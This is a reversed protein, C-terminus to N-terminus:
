KGPRPRTRIPLYVAAHTESPQSGFRKDLREIYADAPESAPTQAQTDLPEPSAIVTLLELGFPPAITFQMIDNPGGLTFIDGAKLRHSKIMNPLLHLVDGNVQYYDVQLFADRDSVVQVSLTEGATYTASQKKNAKMSLGFAGGKPFVQEFFRTVNRMVIEQSADPAAADPVAKTVPAAPAAAMASAPEAAEASPTPLPPTPPASASAQSLGVAGAATDPQEPDADDPHEPPPAAAETATEAPGIWVNAWGNNGYGISSPQYGHLRKDRFYWGDLWGIVVTPSDSVLLRRQLEHYIQRREDPAQARQGRRALKEATRDQWGSWNYPADAAFLLDFPASPDPRMVLTDEIGILDFRGRSYDRWAASSEYAKLQARIGIRRLQPAILQARALYDGVSRVLIDVDVGNPYVSAVLRQAEAIDQAKPQRCGPTAMLDELPLAWDGYIDPPLVACPTGGQEFAAQMLHQRDLALHVARRMEPARFPGKKPNLYLTWVTNLPWQYVEIEDGRAKQLEQAQAYSMPAWTSWFWTDGFSAARLWHARHSFVTHVIENAYPHLADYYNPNRSWVIDRNPADSKIMFPGTGIASEMRSLTPDRELVHRAVMRCWPSALTALFAAAPYKLEVRVTYDDPAAVREIMAQLWSGCPAQRPNLTLLRTLTALVDAATFAAGDHWQADRRLHFTYVKGADAADWREALDPKVDRPQRPDYQLLGSYVGAIAQQGSTISTTHPDFSAPAAAIFGSVRGGYLPAEAAAGMAGILLVTIILVCYRHLCMARM